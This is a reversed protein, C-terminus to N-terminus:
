YVLFALSDEVPLFIIFVIKYDLIYHGFKSSKGKHGLLSKPQFRFLVTNSYKVIWIPVNKYWQFRLLCTQTEKLIYSWSFLLIIYMVWWQINLEQFFFITVNSKNIGKAEVRTTGNGNRYLLSIVSALYSLLLTEVDCTKM